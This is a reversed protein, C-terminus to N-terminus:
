NFNARLREAAASYADRQGIDLTMLAELQEIAAAFHGRSAFLQAYEMRAAISVDPLEIQAAAVDSLGRLDGRRFQIARLNNLMRNAVEIPGIPDLFGMEFTADPLLSAFLSQVDDLTMSRGGSMPDFWRRDAGDGSALLLHAPMGIPEVSIGSRAGIEIAVISLSIPIGVRSEIVRHLYSNNPHYYDTTNGRFGLQGFVHTMLADASDLDAGSALEDLSGIIQEVPPADADLQAIHAAVRGVSTPGDGAFLEDLGFSRTM